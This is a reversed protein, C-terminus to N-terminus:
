SSNLAMYSLSLGLFLYASTTASKGLKGKSFAYKLINELFLDPVSGLRM